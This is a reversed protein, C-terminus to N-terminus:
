FPAEDKKDLMVMERLIVETAYRKEGDKEYERTELRGEAYIKSGKRLYQGCIEALKDWAVLTIWSTGGDGSSTRKGVGLSISCVAKGSKTYRVEPDRGLNGTGHWSNADTKAM